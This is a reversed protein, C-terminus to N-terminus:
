EDNAAVMTEPMNVGGDMVFSVSGGSGLSVSATVVLQAKSKSKVAVTAKTTGMSPRPSAGVDTSASATAAGSSEVKAEPKAVASGQSVPKAGGASASAVAASVPRAIPRVVPAVMRALPKVRFTPLKLSALVRAMAKSKPATEIDANLGKPQLLNYNGADKGILRYGTVFVAVAEDVDTSNFKGVGTGTVSVLDKGFAKIKPTGRLQAKTTGDQKKALGTLGVIEIDAQTIKAKLGTQQVLNYNGADTGTISNGTITVGKGDAVDKDAFEGAATGGLIVKDSGLASVSAKGALAAVVGADYTKNSVRLGSVGLNAKGINATLGTQQVLNYNGADTGTISNGTITVGKGDAVDKDAFEGAATGGLIVKDSGLASV